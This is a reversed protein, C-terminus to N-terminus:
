VVSKRDVHGGYQRDLFLGVLAFFFFMAIAVNKKRRSIFYRRKRSHRM